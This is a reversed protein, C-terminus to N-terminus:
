QGITISRTALCQSVYAAATTVRCLHISLVWLLALHERVRVDELARAVERLRVDPESSQLQSQQLAQCVRTTTRARGSPQLQARRVLDKDRAFLRRERERRHRRDFRAREHHERRGLKVALGDLVRELDLRATDYSAARRVELAHLRRSSRRAVPATEDQCVHLQKTKRTQRQNVSRSSFLSLFLSLKPRWGALCVAAPGCTAFVVCLSSSSLVASTSRTTDTCM